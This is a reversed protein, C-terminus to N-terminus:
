DTENKNEKKNGWENPVITRIVNNEVIASMGNGISYKGDGFQNVRKILEPSLVNQRDKKSWREGNLAREEYRTVAHKSLVVRGEVMARFARELHFLEDQLAIKKNRSNTSFYSDVRNLIKKELGYLARNKNYPKGM